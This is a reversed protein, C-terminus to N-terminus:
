AKRRGWAVYGSNRFGDSAKGYPFPEGDLTTMSGGAAALIAHGAAVDWECTAGARPYMDAKGAAIRCFKLSSGATERSAVHYSALFAETEANMHSRSAIVTLAKMDAVRTHLDNSVLDAM